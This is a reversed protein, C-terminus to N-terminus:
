NNNFTGTYFFLFDNDNRWKLTGRARKGNNYAGEFTHKLGEEKGMGEFRNNRFGGSYKFDEAEYYGNQCSAQNNDFKGKFYAGNPFIFAGLGHAKGKIFTGVFLSGDSKYM